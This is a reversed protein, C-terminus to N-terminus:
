RRRKKRPAKVKPQQAPRPQQAAPATFAAFSEPRQPGLVELLVLAGVMLLLAVIFTIAAARAARSIVNVKKAGGVDVTNASDAATKRAQAESQKAASSNITSQLQDHKSQLKQYDRVVAALADVDKTAQAVSADLSAARSSNGAAHAQQAQVKLRSLEAVKSRYAEPADLLLGHQANFEIIQQQVAEFDSQAKALARNAVDLEPDVLQSLSERAVARVVTVVRDKHSSEYTVDVVNSTGERKTHLGSKISSAPLKTQATVQRLVQDSGVKARYDSVVQTVDSVSSGASPITVAATARYQRPGIALVGVIAEAAFIPAVVMWFVRRRNARLYAILQGGASNPDRWAGPTPAPTGGTPAAVSPQAQLPQPQL